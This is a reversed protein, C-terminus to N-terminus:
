ALARAHQAERQTKREHCPRSHIPRLNTDDDAGGQALPIVHDVQDSGLQGCVHCTDDHRLIRQARRQQAWGSLTSQRRSSGAWATKGHTPCPHANACEPDSCLKAARSM